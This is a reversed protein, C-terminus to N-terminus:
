YYSTEGFEETETPRKTLLVILIILLVVFVIVLVVTWIVVPDTSGTVRSDKDEVNLTFTVPKVSGSESNVNVTFAYTGEELSDTARVKVKVIKSSEAGVTVIPEVAEVILGDANDPTVTYVVMRNNPNVLVLNFTTEQGASITQSATGPLIGTEVDSVVIAKKATTTTDYNYAQVELEYTGPMVNRPLTLYVKKNLTDRIDDYDDDNDSAMDGVYIKKTIGLEPISAKVYVDDLRDRGNNEIVVDVAISSGATISQPTEVSLIQLSELNKSVRMTYDEETEDYGRADIEVHLTLDDFDLEELDLSSPYKMSFMARYGSTGADVVDQNVVTRTEEKYGELYVTISVDEVEENASLTSIASYEVIIPVTDSVQGIYATSGANVTVDNVKVLEIQAIPDAAAVINLAFALVFLAIFSVIITKSKM